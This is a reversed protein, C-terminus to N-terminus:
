GASFQGDALSLQRGCFEQEQMAQMLGPEESYAVTRAGGPLDFVAVARWPDSGQYLVTYGAVMAAGRFDAVIERIDSAARAQDTV